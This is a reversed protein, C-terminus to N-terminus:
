WFVRFNEAGEARIKMCKYSTYVLTPNGTQFGSSFFFGSSFCLDVCIWQSFEHLEPPKSGGSSFINITKLGMRIIKCNFVLM